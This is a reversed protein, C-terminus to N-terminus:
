KVFAGGTAATTSTHLHCEEWAVVDAYRYRVARGLRIFPIGGGKLRDAQLKKVSIGWRAALQQENLHPPESGGHSLALRTENGASRPIATDNLANSRFKAQM